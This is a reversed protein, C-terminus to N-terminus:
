EPRSLFRYCSQAGVTPIRPRFRLRPNVTQTPEPSFWAPAIYADENERCHTVMWRIGAIHHDCRTLKPKLVSRSFWVESIRLVDVPIESVYWEDPDDGVLRAWDNLQQGERTAYGRYAPWPVVPIDASSFGLAVRNLALANAMGHDLKIEQREGTTGDMALCVSPTLCNPIRTNTTFWAVPPFDKLERRAQAETKIEGLYPHFVGKSNGEVEIVGSMWILNTRLISTHHYVTRTGNQRRRKAEGM